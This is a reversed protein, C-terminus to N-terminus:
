VKERFYWAYSDFGWFSKKLGEDEVSGDFEWWNWRGNFAEFTEKNPFYDHVMICDKPKLWKSVIEFEHKKNGGDCLFLIKSKDYSDALKKIKEWNNYIDIHHFQILSSHYNKFKEKNIDFTHVPIKIVHALANTLGGYDAGFEFIIDFNYLAQVYEFVDMVGWVQIAPLDKYKFTEVPGHNHKEISM